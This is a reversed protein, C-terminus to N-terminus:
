LLKTLLLGLGTGVALAALIWKWPLRKHSQSLAEAEWTQTDPLEVWLIETSVITLLTALLAVMSVANQAKYALLYKKWAEEFEDALGQDPSIRADGPKVLPTWKTIDLKEPQKTNSLLVLETKLRGLVTEDFADHRAQESKVIETARPLLAHVLELETVQEWGQKLLRAQTELVFAPAGGEQMLELTVQRRAITKAQLRATEVRQLIKKEM